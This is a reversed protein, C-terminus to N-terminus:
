GEQWANKKYRAWYKRAWVILFLILYGFILGLGIGYISRLISIFLPTHFHTFTNLMSLFGISGITLFCKGLVSSCPLFYLGIVMAPYGILFEKTRPRVYLLEELKHRITMELSSVMGSNGTRVLYYAFAFLLVLMVLVHWVRIEKNLLTQLSHRNQKTFFSYFLGFLVLLPPIIHLLKIGRFLEVGTIFANGNLLGIILLIGLITIGTAQLFSLWVPAQKEARSNASVLVAGVVTLIAILWTFLKLLLLYDTIMWAAGLVFLLFVVMGRIKQFFLCSLLTYSFLLATVLLLPQIWNAKEIKQFPLANGHIFQAPMQQQLKELFVIGETADELPLNVLISRINREKIARIAQQVSEEMPKEGLQIAHQRIFQYDTANAIVAGGALRTFEQQYFPIGHKQLDNGTTQMADANPFGLVEGSSFLVGQPSSQQYTHFLDHLDSEDQNPLNFVYNIGMEHLMQMEYPDYGIFAELSSRDTFYYFREGGVLRYELYFHQNLLEQYFAQQPQSVYIGKEVPSDKYEASFRLAEVLEADTYISLLQKEKMRELTLYDLQVKKLGAAQFDELVEYLLQNEEAAAETLHQLPMVVEYTRNASEVAVRNILGPLSLILLFLVLSFLYFPKRM